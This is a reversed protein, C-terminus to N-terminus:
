YHRLLAKIAGVAATVRLGQLVCARVCARVCVCVCVCVCVGEVTERAEQLCAVRERLWSAQACVRGTVGEEGKGGGEM